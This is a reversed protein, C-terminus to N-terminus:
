VNGGCRMEKMFKEQGVIQGTAVAASVICGLVGPLLINQGALLVGKLRTLPALGPCHRDHRVGYLSGTSGYVWRRMTAPTASELVRLDALEPCRRRLSDAFRGAYQQKAALYEPGTDPLPPCETVAMLARRDDVSTEGSVLYATPDDPNECILLRAPDSNEPMFLVRNDLFDSRTEAFLIFPALTEPMERLRELYVPRLAGPPLLGPLQHPHGTFLCVDCPLHTGDELVVGRVAREASIDIFKVAHGCHLRVGADAAKLEMALALSKGGGALTHTAHMFPATVVSFSKWEGDKPPVGYLLAFSGLMTGLVAPFESLRELVTSNQVAANQFEPSTPLPPDGQVTPSMYPSMAMCANMDSLFAAVRAENGPFDRATMRLIADKGCPLGTTTGDPFRFLFSKNERLPVPHLMSALGLTKLWFALPGGPQLGGAIHFGTDFHLGNRSFGRLLPAPCSHKEVVDVTHGFRRMMLAAALGTIGAGVVVIHM